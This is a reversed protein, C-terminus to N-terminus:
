SPLVFGKTCCCSSSNFSRWENEVVVHREHKQWWCMTKDQKLWLMVVFSPLFHSRGEDGQFFLSFSPKWVSQWHRWDFARLSLRTIKTKRFLASTDQWYPAEECQWLLTFAAAALLLWLALAQSLRAFVLVIFLVRVRIFFGGLLIEVLTKFGKCPRCSHKTGDSQPLYVKNFRNGRPILLTNWSYGTSPLRLAAPDAERWTDWTSHLPLCRAWM